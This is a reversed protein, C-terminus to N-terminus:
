RKLYTCYFKYKYKNFFTKEMKELCKGHNSSISAQLHICTNVNFHFINKEFDLNNDIYYIYCLNHVEDNFERPEYIISHKHVFHYLETEAFTRNWKEQSNEIIGASIFKNCVVLLDSKNYQIVDGFYIRLCDIVEYGFFYIYAAHFEKSYILRKGKKNIIVNKSLFNVINSWLQLAKYAVGYQPRKYHITSRENLADVSNSIRCGLKIERIATLDDSSAVKLTESAEELDQISVIPDFLLSLVPRSVADLTQSTLTSTSPDSILDNSLTSSSSSLNLHVAVAMSSKLTM